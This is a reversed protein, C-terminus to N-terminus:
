EGIPASAVVDGAKWYNMYIENGDDDLSYFGDEEIPATGVSERVERQAKMANELDGLVQGIIRRARMQENEFSRLM